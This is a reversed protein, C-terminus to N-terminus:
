NIEIGLILKDDTASLNESYNNTEQIILDISEELSIQKDCVNTIIQSLGTLGLLKDDRNYIELLGDTILYLRDGPFLNVCLENYTLNGLIGLPTGDIEYM